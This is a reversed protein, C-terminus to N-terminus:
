STGPLSKMQQAIKAYNHLYTLWLVEPTCFLIVFYLSQFLMVFNACKCTGDNWGLLSLYNIMADPLYGEEQFQTCSTAGHRKSLKQKDQGLILSCHAYQPRPAGIADLILVQRLTNTLHEEARIVTSIGMNADDVAVCFNYVPM